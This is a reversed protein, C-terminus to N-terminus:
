DGPRRPPVTGSAGRQHSHPQEALGPLPVHGDAAARGEAQGAPLPPPPRHGDAGTGLEAAPFAGNRRGPGAGRFPLFARQPRPLTSSPSTAGFGTPAGVRGGGRRPSTGPPRLAPPACRCGATSCPRPPKWRRGPSRPPVGPGGRPLRRCAPPRPAPRGAPAPRGRQVEPRRRPVTPFPPPAPAAAAALRQEHRPIPFQYGSGHRGHAVYRWFDKAFRSVDVQTRTVLRRLWGPGSAGERGAIALHQEVPAGGRPGADRKM